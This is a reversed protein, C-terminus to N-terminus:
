RSWLSSLFVPRVIDLGMDTDIASPPAAAAHLVAMATPQRQRGPLSWGNRRVCLVGARLTCLCADSM